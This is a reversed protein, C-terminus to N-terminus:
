WFVEFLALYIWLYRRVYVSLQFIVRFHLIIFCPFSRAYSNWCKHTTNTNFNQHAWFCNTDGLTKLLFPFYSPPIESFRLYNNIIEFCEYFRSFGFDKSFSNFMNSYNQIPSSDEYKPVIMKQIM